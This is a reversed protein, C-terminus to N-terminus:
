YVATRGGGGTSKTFGIYIGRLGSLESLESLESLGSLGSLESLGSLMWIDTLRFKIVAARQNEEGAFSLCCNASNM